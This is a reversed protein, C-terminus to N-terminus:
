KLAGIGFPCSLPTGPEGDAGLFAYDLVIEPLRKGEQSERRKHYRSRGRGSICALGWARCHIHTTNHEEVEASTPLPGETIERM